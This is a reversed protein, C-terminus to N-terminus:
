RNKLESYRNMDVTIQQILSLLVTQELPCPCKFVTNFDAKDITFEVLSLDNSILAQHFAKNIQGHALYQKISDHHDFVPAPTEAQSRTVASLVSDELSSKQQEFGNQIENRVQEKVDHIIKTQLGDLQQKISYLKSNLLPIITQENSTKVEQKVQQPIQHIASSFETMQFQVAGYQKMYTDFARTDLLFFLNILKLSIIKNKISQFKCEKTGATFAKGMEQFMEHTIKEYSPIMIDELSKKFTQDLSKQIGLLLSQSISEMFAKHGCVKTISDKIMVETTSLQNRAFQQFLQM